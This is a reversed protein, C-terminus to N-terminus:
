TKQMAHPLSSTMCYLENSLFLRYTSSSLLLLRKVNAFWSRCTPSYIGSFKKSIIIRRILLDFAFCAVMRRFSCPLKSRFCSLPTWSALCRPSTMQQLLVVGPASYFKPASSGWFSGLAHRLSALFACTQCFALKTCNQWDLGARRRCSILLNTSHLSVNLAPQVDLLYSYSNGNFQTFDISPDSDTTPCSICRALWSNRCACASSLVRWFCM